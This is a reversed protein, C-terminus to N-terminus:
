KEGADLYYWDKRIKVERSLENPFRKFIELVKLRAGQNFAGIEEICSWFCKKHVLFEAQKRRKLEEKKRRQDLDDDPNVGWMRLKIAKSDVHLLDSLNNFCKTNFVRAHGDTFVFQLGAEEILKTNSVLYILPEQGENYGEHGQKLRLLMPPRYGFYFPVYDHLTGGPPVNIVVERRGEQIRRDCIHKYAPRHEQFNPAYLAQDTLIIHLNDLHTIRYIFMPNPPQRHGETGSSQM